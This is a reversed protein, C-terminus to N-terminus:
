KRSPQHFVPEDRCDFAAQNIAARIFASLHQQNLRALDRLDVWESSSVRMTVIITAPDETPPRGRHPRDQCCTAANSM